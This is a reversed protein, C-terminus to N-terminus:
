SPRRLVILHESLALQHRTGNQAWRSGRQRLPITQLPTFGTEEAMRSILAPTDVYVGYPASDGVVWALIGGADLHTHARSLVQSIDALYAPLMQDYEKGRPRDRRQKTLSTSLQRAARATNPLSTLLTWGAEARELTSQQTSAAVMNARIKSCLGAWTRVTGLFYLELRTADAYDYNNLYPPSSLCVQAKTDCLADRWSGSARSDGIIIRADVGLPLSAVDDVLWQIRERFRKPVSRHPAKRELAPRQYPWGVKVSAVDRLTGVLACRLYPEFRSGAAAIIERLAILFHLTEDDFSRRVLSTEASDNFTAISAARM